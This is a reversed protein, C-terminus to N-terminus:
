NNKNIERAEREACKNNWVLLGIFVAGFTLAILIDRM